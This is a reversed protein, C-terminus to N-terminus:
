FRQSRPSHITYNQRFYVRYLCIQIENENLKVYIPLEFFVSALYIKYLIYIRYFQM